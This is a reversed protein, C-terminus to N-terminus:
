LVASRALLSRRFTPRLSPVSPAPAETLAPSAAGSAANNRAMPLSRAASYMPLVNVLISIPMKPATSVKSRSCRPTSKSAASAASTAPLAAEPTSDITHCLSRPNTITENALGLRILGFIHLFVMWDRQIHRFSIYANCTQNLQM